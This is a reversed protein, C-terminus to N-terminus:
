RRAPLHPRRPRDQPTAALEDLTEPVRGMRRAAALTIERLDNHAWM